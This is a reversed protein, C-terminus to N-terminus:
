QCDKNHHRVYRKYTLDNNGSMSREVLKFNNLYKDLSLFTDCDYDKSIETIYISSIDDMNLFQKYITEGGIVWVEDYKRIGCYSKLGDITDFSKLIHSDCITKDVNLRSSLVLNDRKPLFDKPLSDWTKRGMIIANNNKGRTLKAFRKLDEPFHWPLRNNKGIGFNNCHAVILKFNM